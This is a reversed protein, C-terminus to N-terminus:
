DEDLVSDYFDALKDIVYDELTNMVENTHEAKANVAIWRDARHWNSSRSNDDESFTMGHSVGVQVYGDPLANKAIMLKEEKADTEGEYIPRSMIKGKKILDELKETPTLEKRRRKKAM